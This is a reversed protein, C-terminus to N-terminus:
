KDGVGKIRAAAEGKALIYCANISTEFITRAIGYCDRTHLGTSESLFIITHASSTIGQLLALVVTGVADDIETNETRKPSSLKHGVLIAMIAHLFNIQQKIMYCLNVIRENSKTSSGANNINVLNM